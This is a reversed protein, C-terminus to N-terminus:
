GLLIALIGAVMMVALSPIKKVVFYIVLSAAFLLSAVWSWQIEAGITFLTVFLTGAVAASSALVFDHIWNKKQLHDVAWTFWTQIHFFCPAFVGITALTAGGLGLVKYGIYTTTIVVPGPTMQGFALANLFEPESIWKLDVVFDNRLVPLIAFGTGFVLAGAKLCKQLLIWYREDLELFIASMAAPPVRRMNRIVAYVIGFGLIIIPEPVLKFHFLVGGLVALGLYVPNKYDKQVLAKMAYLILAFASIQLGLIFKRVTEIHEFRHYYEALFLIMVFAPLVFAVAAACGGLFGGRRRGIYTSMMFSIPGPMAKIMTFAQTFESSSIWSRKEVLDRQLIGLVALPGGFSTIGLKLFYSFIEALRKVRHQITKRNKTNM